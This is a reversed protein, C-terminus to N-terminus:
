LNVIPFAVTHQDYSTALDNLSQHRGLFQMIKVYCVLFWMVQYKFSPLDYNGTDDFERTRDYKSDM